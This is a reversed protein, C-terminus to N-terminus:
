PVKRGAPVTFWFTSGRGPESEVGITGGMLSVLRKSISLGLGTGEYQRTLGTEIQTFPRFLKDMDEKKMGIGTDTVSIKVENGQLICSIRIGGHETFKIANSLLNLLVQEVRRTDATVVGVDTGIVLDLALHRTVTMPRVTRVAKEIVPQIEFPEIAMKLQGAEIKSIDLVDNILALLHEASASVMGLQKKQEENLPGALEQELIGSFGIISNLPTRLEHSMTALFVSKLRDASEAAEKAMELERTREAVTEELHDRSSELDRLAQRRGQEETRIKEVMARFSRALVGIEGAGETRISQDLDGTEAIRRSVDTLNALPRIVSHNLILLTIASLLVLAILVFILIRAISENIHQEVTSFPVFEGIKWGLEPSTYFFLYSGNLLLVGADQALLAPAQEHLIEEVNCFLLSTNRSALIMGNKDLLILEGEHVVNFREIHSTLNVLTIDVGVVGYITGNPYAIPTVIGINVDDTTVARYPETVSVQGPNERALIYWPRDRPDYATPLARPFSRVFAGNERGMYVSSVYPHTWQYDWFTDIIEQEGPTISYQFTEEDAQLFSTFRSDDPNRVEENVSLELVDYRVSGIFNSLAFDIHRLQDISDQSITNLSQQHLSVPLVGGILVLILLAICLYLLLVRYQLKM